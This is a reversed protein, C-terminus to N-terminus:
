YFGAPAYFTYREYVIAIFQLTCIIGFIYNFVPFRWPEPNTDFFKWSIFILLGYVILYPFIPLWFPCPPIDPEPHKTEKNMEIDKVVVESM